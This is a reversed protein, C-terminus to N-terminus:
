ELGAHRLARALKSATQREFPIDLSAFLKRLGDEVILLRSLDPIEVELEYDM